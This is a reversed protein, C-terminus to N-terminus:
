PLARVDARDRLLTKWETPGTFAARGDVEYVIRGIDLSSESIEIGADTRSLRAPELMGAEVLEHYRQMGRITRVLLGLSSQYIRDASKVGEAWGAAAAAEWVMVEDSGKPLLQWAPQKPMPYAKLLFGRWNPPGSVIRETMEVRYAKRTSTAQRDSERNWGDEWTSLVAPLMVGDIMLPTFSTAIDLQPAASRLLGEIQSYRWALGSKLGYLRAETEVAQLRLGSGEEDGEAKKPRRLAKISELEDPAKTAGTTDDSAMSPILAELFAGARGPAEAEVSSPGSKAGRPGAAAHMPLVAIIAM